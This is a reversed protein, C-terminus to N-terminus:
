FEYLDHRGAHGPPLVSMLILTHRHARLHTGEGLVAGCAAAAGQTIAVLADVPIHYAKNSRNVMIRGHHKILQFWPNRRGEETRGGIREFKQMAKYLKEEPLEAAVVNDRMKNLLPMYVIGLILEPDMVRAMMQAMKIYSASRGQMEMVTFGVGLHRSEDDNIKEFAQHCVSDKVTDLLFTCLAGDLAIELMPVVAVSCM